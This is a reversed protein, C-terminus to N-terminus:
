ESRFYREIAKGLERGVRQYGATNSYPTNWPTELSAAVVNDATNLIIWNNSIKQWNEDYDKALADNRGKYALPGSIEQQSAALFRDLNKAGLDSLFEQPSLYFYPDQDRAGPNHLDIFLEFEGRRDMNRIQEIASKVSNWHPSDSWDRNHDQPKQNKGGAGIVVNDIDMIPVITIVSKKRLVEARPNESTIWDIFGSCVWSAGSEWAHQRAQIWIGNPKNNDTGNEKIILAPVSRGERTKCLEFATAYTYHLAVADILEKAKEPGFPPGWAFWCESTDVKQKYIIREEQRKGPSTQQWKVNNLSFAARSPTAWSGEGVDLTITDGPSIGTVKIYWWCVWGRNEHKTPNIKILRSPQDILLVEGSGGSHNISVKLEAAMTVASFILVFQILRLLKLRQHM